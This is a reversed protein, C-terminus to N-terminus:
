NDETPIPAGETAGQGWKGIIEADENYILLSSREVLYESGDHEWQELELTEEDDQQPLSDNDPGHVELNYQADVEEDDESNLGFENVIDDFTEEEEPEPVKTQDAVKEETSSSVLAALENESIVKAKQTKKKSKSKKATHAYSTFKGSDFGSSIAERVDGDKWIISQNEKRNRERRSTRGKQHVEM